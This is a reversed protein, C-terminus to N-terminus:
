PFGGGNSCAAVTSIVTLVTLMALSGAFLISRVVRKVQM